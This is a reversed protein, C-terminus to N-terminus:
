SPVHRFCGAFIISTATPGWGTMDHGACFAPGNGRIVVVRIDPDEALSDLHERMKEMMELSLANRVRPRNLTLWGLPGEKESVVSTM